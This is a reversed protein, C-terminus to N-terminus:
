GAEAKEGQHHQFVTVSRFNALYETERCSMESNISKGDTKLMQHLHWDVQM